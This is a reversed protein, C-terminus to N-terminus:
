QGALGSYSTGEVFYRQFTFFVLALPVTTIVAGALFQHWRLTEGSTGRLTALGLTLTYLNPNGGIIILADMFNNWQGQFSFIALATLAPTALPLVVRFFIVFRNAGDVQAAEEIEVPVTDFFQKMLFIGFADAALPIILGQYTNLIGFQQLIIFRPILLVVGPIMLTGLIILFIIRNGPFKIRSLAYGALSDLILHLITISVAFILSNMFWRGLNADFVEEYGDLTPNFTLVSSSQAATLVSGDQVCDIGFPPLPIIAAPNANIAPLCKFSNAVTFVFPMVEILAVIVLISIGIFGLIRGLPRRRTGAPTDLAISAM